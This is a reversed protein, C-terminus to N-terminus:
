IETSAGAFFGNSTIATLNGTITTQSIWITTWSINAVLWTVAIEDFISFVVQLSISSSCVFVCLCLCVFCLVCCCLFVFTLWVLWGARWRWGGGSLPLFISYVCAVFFLKPAGCICWWRMGGRDHKPAHRRMILTKTKVIKRLYKSNKQRNLKQETKNKQPASLTLTVCLLSHLTSTKTNALPCRDRQKRFRWILRRSSRPLGWFHFFFCWWVFCFRFRCFSQLSITINMMDFFDYRMMKILKYRRVRM